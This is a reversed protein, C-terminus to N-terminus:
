RVRIKKLYTKFSRAHQQEAFNQLPCRYISSSLLDNENEGWLGYPLKKSVGFNVHSKKKIQIYCVCIHM